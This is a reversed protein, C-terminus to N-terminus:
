FAIVTKLTKLLVFDVIGGASKENMKETLFFRVLFSVVQSNKAQAINM